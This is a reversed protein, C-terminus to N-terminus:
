TRIEREISNATTTTTTTTNTTTVSQGVRVGVGQVGALVYEGFVM